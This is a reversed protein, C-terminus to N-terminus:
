LEELLENMRKPLPRRVGTREYTRVRAAVGEAWETTLPVCGAGSGYGAVTPGFWHPANWCKAEAQGRMRALIIVGVRLCRDLAEDSAGVMAEPDEGLKRAEDPDVQMLCVAGGGRKEGVQVDRTFHSEHRAITVGARIIQLKSAAGRWRWEAPPAEAIRAYARAIGVWRAEAARLTECPTAHPREGTALMAALALAVLSV